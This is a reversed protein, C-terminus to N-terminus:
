RRRRRRGLLALGALALGLLTSRSSSASASCGGGGGGLGADLGPILGAEGPAATGADRTGADPPGLSPDRVVYFASQRLESDAQGDNARVRWHYLRTVELPEQLQWATFGPTPALPESTRLAPSDFTDVTDIEFLYTIPDFDLDEANAAALRPARDVIGIRDTPYIPTPAMPARNPSVSLEWS